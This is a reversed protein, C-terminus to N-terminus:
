AEFFVTEDTGQLRINFTYVPEGQRERRTAIITSRRDEPVVSLIPDSANAAEGEFYVRTFLQKLLGRAFVSVNIHPAQLTDGPGPV